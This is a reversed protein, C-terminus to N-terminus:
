QSLLRAKQQAFEEDSLLGDDRLAALERIRDSLSSEPTAVSESTPTVVQPVQAQDLFPVGVYQIIPQIAARLVHPSIKDFLYYAAAGDKRRVCLVTQTEKGKAALGFLGFALVPGVKSRTVEGSEITVGACENWPIIVYQQKPSSGFALGIRFQDVLLIGFRQGPNTPIGGLYSTFGLNVPVPPSDNFGRGARIALLRQAIDFRRRADEMLQDLGVGIVGVDMFSSSAETDTLRVQSRADDIPHGTIGYRGCAAKFWAGTENRGFHFVFQPVDEFTLTGKREVTRHWPANRGDFHEIKYTSQGFASYQAMLAATEEDYGTSFSSPALSPEYWKGDSALWWGPGRCVDSM